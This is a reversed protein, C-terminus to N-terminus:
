CTPIRRTWRSTPPAPANASTTSTRCSKGGDRTRYVGREKSPGFINGLVAVYAIDPNTPICRFARSIDRCQPPRRAAVDQGADSSKYMGIGTSVNGRASLGLGTGVYIVNPNSQAVSIAGISGAEFFGDSINNWTAGADPRAGSAAARAAWTTFSKTRSL